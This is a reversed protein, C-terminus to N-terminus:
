RARFERIFKVENIQIAGSVGQYSIEGWDPHNRLLNFDFISQWSEEKPINNLITNPNDHSDEFTFTADSLVFHWAQFDSLLVRNNDIEVILLVGVEGKPLHGSKRLDPRKTWLWIPYEGTYNPLHKHMQAMMWQYPKIFEEWVYQRAGVLVGSKKSKQWASSTQITWFTSM